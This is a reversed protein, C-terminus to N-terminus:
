NHLCWRELVIILELDLGFWTHKVLLGRLPLGLLHRRQERWDWALRMGLGVDKATFCVFSAKRVGWEVPQIAQGGVSLM